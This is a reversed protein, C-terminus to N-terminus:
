TKHRENEFIEKLIDKNRKIRQRVADYRIDLKLMGAIDKEPANEVCRLYMIKANVEGIKSVLFQYLEEKELSEFYQECPIEKNLPVYRSEKRKRNSLFNDTCKQLYAVPCNIYGRKERECFAQLVAHSLSELNDFENRFLLRRKIVSLCYINLNYAAVSDYKSLKLLKNFEKVDMDKTICNFTKTHPLPYTRQGM